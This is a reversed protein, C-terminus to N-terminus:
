EFQLFILLTIACNFFMFVIFFIVIDCLIGMSEKGVENEGYELAPKRQNAMPNSSYGLVEDAGFVETMEMSEVNAPPASRVYKYLFVGLMCLLFL